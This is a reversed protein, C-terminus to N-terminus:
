GAVLQHRKMMKMRSSRTQMNLRIRKIHLMGGQVASLRAECEDTSDDATEDLDEDADHRHLVRLMGRGFKGHQPVSNRM